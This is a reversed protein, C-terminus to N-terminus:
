RNEGHRQKEGKNERSRQRDIREVSSEAAVGHRMVTRRLPPLRDLLFLGLGRLGQVPIFDSLLTRNLADVAMTRSVVDSRRMRDFGALHKADGADSLPGAILDALARVDRYGLNLGQAGIPPFLHAAEGVLAVRPGSFRRATMGSLPFVQRGGDIEIAGLISATREEIAKALDADSLGARAATEERTGVWVLSSRRGPLPVLTCPGTVTHFETSTDNHPLSHSLNAVLAAQDYSWADVSIGAAARTPSHRGDAGVALKCEVSAGAALRIAVCEAGVSIDDATQSLRVIDSEAVLAELESVLLANPVNYGFADLEIERADFTVEPARILRDTVDVIRLTRLTGSQPALASWAGLRDLLAISGALLAATRGDAARSEPGIVAVRYGARDCALGAALGVPGAGVVAIDVKIESM